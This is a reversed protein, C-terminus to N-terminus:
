KDLSNYKFTAQSRNSADLKRFIRQLHNKVTFRSIDLIEAIEVNTNGDRVLEMIECERLTLTENNSDQQPEDASNQLPEIRRLANDIFPLLIPLVKKSTEIPSQNSLFLYLCDDHARNDKIGHILCSKMLDLERMQMSSHHNINKLAKHIDFYGDEINLALPKFTSSEWLELMSTIQPRLLEKDINSTRLLPHIAVIDLYIIGVSFDGWAAVLIDHPIHDQIDSQLWNLLEYHSSVELSKEILAYVKNVDLQM